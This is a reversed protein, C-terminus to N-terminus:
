RRPRCRLNGPECRFRVHMHDVHGNEHHLLPSQEPDAGPVYFYRAFEEPSLEARAVPELLRQLKRSMFIHQVEGTDVLAKILFWNKEVDFTQATARKWQWAPQDPTPEVDLVYGLDVDRGARHSVHPHARGGRRSSLEGVRVPPAEEFAEGYRHFATVMAEVANRSGYARTRRERLTWYPGEPMPLGHQLRGRNPSGISRTPREEDHEYVRVQMGAHVSSMAGLEPNLARLEYLPLGWRSSLTEASEDFPATWWVERYPEDVESEETEEEDPPEVPGMATPATLEELLPPVVVVTPPSGDSEIASLPESATAVQEDSALLPVLLILSRLRVM